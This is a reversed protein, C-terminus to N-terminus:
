VVLYVFLVGLIVWFEVCLGFLAAIAWNIQRAGEVHEGNM